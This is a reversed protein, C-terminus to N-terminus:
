TEAVTKIVRSKCNKTEEGKEGMEVGCDETQERYRHTNRNQETIKNKLSWM